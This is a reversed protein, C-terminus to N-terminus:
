SHLGALKDAHNRSFIKSMDLIPVENGAKSIFCSLSVTHLDKAHNPLQCLQSNDVHELEPSDTLVVGGYQIENNIDRYIIVAIVNRTSKIGSQNCLTSLDVVPLINDNWIIIDQCFKPAKPVNIYCPTNIIHVLEMQSVSVHLLEDVKMVWAAAKSM